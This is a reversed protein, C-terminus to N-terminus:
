KVDMYDDPYIHDPTIFDSAPHRPMRHFAIDNQRLCQYIYLAASGPSQDMASLDNLASQIVQCVDDRLNTM